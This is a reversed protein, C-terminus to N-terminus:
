EPYLAALKRISTVNRMTTPAGLLKELKAGSFDSTGITKACLWYLERGDVFFQDVPTQAANLAAVVQENPARHLMGIYLTHDSPPFEKGSGFNVHAAHANEAPTRLFVDTHFGLAHALETTLWQELVAASRAKPDSFILNGSAIFTEVDSLGLGSAIQRLRAMQVTRKGVNIARLFAIYRNTV